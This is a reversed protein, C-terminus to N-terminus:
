SLAEIFRTHVVFWSWKSTSSRAMPHLSHMATEYEQRWMHETRRASRELGTGRIWKWDCDSYWLPTSLLYIESPQPLSQIYPWWFSDRQKLYENIIFFRVIVIQNIVRNVIGLDFRRLFVESGSIVNLWSITLEHPCSVILSDAALVGTDSVRMHTGTSADSAIEVDPHIYGGNALFWQLNNRDIQWEPLMLFLDVSYAAPFVSFRLLRIMSLSCTYPPFSGSPKSVTEFDDDMATKQPRFKGPHFLLATDLM